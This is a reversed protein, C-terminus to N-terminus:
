MAFCRLWVYGCMVCWLVGVVAYLTMAMASLGLVQILSSNLDGLDFKKEVYVVGRSVKSFYDRTEFSLGGKCICFKM